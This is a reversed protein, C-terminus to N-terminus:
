WLCQKTNVDTLRQLHDNFTSWVELATLQQLGTFCSKLSCCMCVMLMMMLMIMLMMRIIIMMLMMMTMVAAVVCWTLWQTVSCHHFWHYQHTSIFCYYYHWSFDTHILQTPRLMLLQWLCGCAWWNFKVTDFAIMLGTNTASHVIHSLMCWILHSWFCGQVNIAYSDEFKIASYLDTKLM